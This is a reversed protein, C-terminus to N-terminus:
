VVSKRDPPFSAWVQGSHVDVVNLYAEGRKSSFQEDLALARASTSCQREMWARAREGARQILGCITGVSLSIGLLRQLCTQIERYSAHAEILLTLVHRELHSARQGPWQRPQFAEQLAKEAKEKWRYLSQRSVHHDRSLQSVMGHCRPATLMQLSWAIRQESTSCHQM